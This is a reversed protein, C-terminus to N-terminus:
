LVTNHSALIWIHVFYWPLVSTCIAAVAGLLWSLGESPLCKTLCKLLLLWAKDSSLSCGLCFPEPFPSDCNPLLPFSPIPHRTELSPCSLLRHPATQLGVQPAAQAERSHVPLSSHSEEKGRPLSFCGRQGWVPLSASDIEMLGFLFSVRPWWEAGAEM